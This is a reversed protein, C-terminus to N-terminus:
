IISDILLCYKCHKSNPQHSCYFRGNACANTGPEDMGDAPCDCYDDNIKSIDIEISDMSCVINGKMNPIYKEDNPLIGKIKLVHTNKLMPKHDITLIQEFRSSTEYKRRNDDSTIRYSIM